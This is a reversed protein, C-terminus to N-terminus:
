VLRGAPSSAKDLCVIQGAGLDLLSTILAQGVCGEGGTVIVVKGTVESRILDEYLHIRREAAETFPNERLKGQGQYVRILDNTLETLSALVEVSQPVPAHAPVLRQMAGIIQKKQAYTM